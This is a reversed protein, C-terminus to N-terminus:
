HLSSTKPPNAGLADGDHILVPKASDREVPKLDDSATKATVPPALGARKKVATIFGVFLPNPRNPRSTFEPHFQSGVMWPHDAIEAIEVLRGDPSLGSFVLGAKGLLDRYANNFEFRHRHREEIVDKRYVQAAKSGPLLHCPYLGLRMTGGMESIERQDPLLDIIPHKTASHFESSNPEDSNLIHRAFEICMVQMGLCLGLYPVRDERAYRAALIKGEIGRYGFGGPVVIGDVKMLRDFARGRELDESNIWEVKVSCDQQVAAHALAECVSLYADRLEIYKGVIAVRVKPKPRKIEQVLARWELLNPRSAPLGLRETLFDGLGFEELVLPVEYITETTVLPIVARLEVDCFLALKAKVKDPVPYDSRCVIVDPNIGMGRLERASHQTPKTKLERTAGIYPLFTVHIYLANARGADKRLQRIAEIFPQGEIDGVTGGVEVLLVEVGSQKAVLAIRRKIENTVHPVTQITRGLYDGRRERAIVEQYVQGTTVNNVRSLDQDIFREYGGLDQDCESGDALVFVEGHEAPALTGPDVNIYPDLKQISVSIGREKLMRGISATTVGKGVGSVVGGTVFIYKTM